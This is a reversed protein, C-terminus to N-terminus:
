VVVLEGSVDVLNRGGGPSACSWTRSACARAHRARQDVARDHLGHGGRAAPRGGRLHVAARAPRPRPLPRRPPHVGRRARRGRDGQPLDPRRRRRARGARVRRDRGRAGPAARRRLHAVFESPRSAASSRGASTPATATSSRATTSSSRSAALAAAPRGDGPRPQRPSGGARLHRRADPVVPSRASCCAHAARARDRDRADDRRARDAADDAALADVAIQTARTLAALEDPSKRM